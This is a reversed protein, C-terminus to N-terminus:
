LVKLEKASLHSVTFCNEMSEIFFAAYFYIQQITISCWLMDFVCWVDVQVWLTSHKAHM